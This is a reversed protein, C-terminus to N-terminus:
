NDLRIKHKVLSMHGMDLRELAFIHTYEKFLKKTKCKLDDNWDKIGDLNIKSFLIQEKELTLPPVGLPGESEVNQSNASMKKSNLECLRQLHVNNEVNPAYSHPVVNVAAIKSVVTKAPITIHQCSVNRIGLSM